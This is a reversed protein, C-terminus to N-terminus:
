FIWATTGPNALIAVGSLFAALCALEIVDEFLARVM